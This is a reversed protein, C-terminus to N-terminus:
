VGGKQKADRRMRYREEPPYKLDLERRLTRESLIPEWGREEAEAEMQRYSAAISKGKLCLEFFRKLAKPHCISKPKETSKRALAAPWEARPVFNTKARYTFLSRESFGTRYSVQYVADRVSMGGEILDEIELLAAAKIAAKTNRNLFDRIDSQRGVSNENM